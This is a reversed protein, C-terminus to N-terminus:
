KFVNGGLSPIGGGGNGHRIPRTPQAAAAEKAAALETNTKALDSKLQELDARLKKAELGAGGLNGSLDTIQKQASQLQVSIRQEAAAAHSTQLIVAHAAQDVDLFAGHSEPQMAFAGGVGVALGGVVLAALLLKNVPKVAPKLTSVAAAAVIPGEEVPRMHPATAFQKKEGEARERRALAENRRRNEEILKQQAEERKKGEERERQERIAREKKEAANDVQKREEDVGAQAESLLDSLLSNVSASPASTVVGDDSGKKPNAM